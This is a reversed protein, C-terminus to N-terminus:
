YSAKYKYKEKVYKYVEDPMRPGSSYPPNMLAVDYEQSLIVLLRIFSRLDRARLSEEDLQDAVVEQLQNLLSPLSLSSEESFVNLQSKNSQV